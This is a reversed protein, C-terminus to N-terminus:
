ESKCVALVLGKFEKGSLMNSIPLLKIPCRENFLASPSRMICRGDNTNWMRLERAEDGNAGEIKHM